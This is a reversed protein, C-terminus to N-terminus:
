DFNVLNFKELLVRWLFIPNGLIYRRWLRRPEIMLRGLWELGHETMWKPPRRVEGALFDFLAGVPLILKVALRTRNETIWKEQLPMGFGVLLVDTQAANINEIVAQNEASEVNKNFFGPQAGSFKFNPNKKLLAQAAREAVGEKSGLFFFRFASKNLKTFEEIWDPPTYRNRIRKGQLIAGMWVGFGDCFVLDSKNLYDRFWKQEAAINMAHVNVNSIVSASDRSALGSMRQLLEELSIDDIKVGLLKHQTM